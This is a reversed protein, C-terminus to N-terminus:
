MVEDYWYDSFSNAWSISSSRREDAEVMAMHARQLKTRVAKTGFNLIFKSRGCELLVTAFGIMAGIFLVVFVGVFNTIFLMRRGDDTVKPANAKCSLRAKDRLPRLYNRYREGIANILHGNQLIANNIRRLISTNFDHRFPFTELTYGLVEIPIM